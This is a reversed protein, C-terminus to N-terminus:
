IAGEFYKAFLAVDSSPAGERRAVETTAYHTEFTTAPSAVFGPVVEYAADAILMSDGLVEAGLEALFALTKVRGVIGYVDDGDAFDRVVRVADVLLYRRQEPVVLLQREHLEVVGDALREDLALQPLFLRNKAMFQPSPARKM